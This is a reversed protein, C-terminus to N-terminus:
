RHMLHQHEGVVCDFIDKISELRKARTCVLCTRKCGEKPDPGWQTQKWFQFIKGSNATDQTEVGRPLSNKCVGCLKKPENILQRYAIELKRKTGAANKTWDFM